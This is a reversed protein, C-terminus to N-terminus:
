PKEIIVIITPIIAEIICVKILLLDLLVFIHIITQTNDAIIPQITNPLSIKSKIANLKLGSCM